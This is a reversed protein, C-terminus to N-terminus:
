QPKALCAPGLPEFCKYTMTFEQHGLAESATLRGNAVRQALSYIERGVEALTAKGELIRGANVDMDEAMRRYTEPNGCVKIVPSLASGVVSGRGTSFLILQSGCAILEGIETNDNPNAFGFRVEGDPVVDL